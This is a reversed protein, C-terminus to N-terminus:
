NSKIPAFQTEIYATDLMKMFIEVESMSKCMISVSDTDVDYWMRIKQNNYFSRDTFQICLIGRVITVATGNIAVTMYGPSNHHKAFISLYKLGHKKQDENLEVVVYQQFRDHNSWVGHLVGFAIVGFCITEFLVM